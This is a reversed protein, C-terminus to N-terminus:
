LTVYILSTMLYANNVNGNLVLCKLLSKNIFCDSAAKLYANMINRSQPIGKMKCQIEYFVLKKRFYKIQLASLFKFHDRYLDIMRDAQCRHVKGAVPSAM